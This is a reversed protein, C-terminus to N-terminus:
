GKIQYHVKNLTIAKINDLAYGRIIYPKKLGQRKGETRKPMFQKIYAVESETLPEGTELHYYKPSKTWMIAVQAYQCYVNDKRTYDYVIKSTEGTIPNVMYEGFTLGASEFEPTAKDAIDQIEDKLFSDIVEQPTGNDLLLQIIEASMERKRKGNVMSEYAYGMITNVCSKKGVKGHLENGTKNMKPITDGWVQAFTCNHVGFLVDLLEAREIVKVVRAVKVAQATKNTEVTKM